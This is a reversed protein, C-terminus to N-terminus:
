SDRPHIHLGPGELKKVDKCSVVYLISIASSYTALQACILVISIYMESSDEHQENIFPVNKM